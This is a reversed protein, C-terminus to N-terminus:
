FYKHAKTMWKIFNRHFNLFFNTIKLDFYRFFYDFYLISYLYLLVVLIKSELVQRYTEVPTYSAFFLVNFTVPLKVPLEGQYSLQDTNFFYFLFLKSNNIVYNLYILM